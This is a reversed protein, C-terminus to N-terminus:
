RNRGSVAAQRTGREPGPDDPRPPPRDAHLRRCEEVATVLLDHLGRDWESPTRLRWRDDVVRFAWRVVSAPPRLVDRIRLAWRPGRGAHSPLVLRAQARALRRRARRPLAGRADAATLCAVVVAQTVRPDARNTGILDPALRALRRRAADDATRDNVLRALASLAPHTCRPADTFREGSLVSVYEMLCAGQEAGGHRGRGLLPLRSPARDAYRHNSDTMSRM